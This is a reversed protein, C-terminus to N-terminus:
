EWWQGPVGARQARDELQELQNLWYERREELRAIISTYSSPVEELKQEVQAIEQRLQRFKMRWVSGDYGGYVGEVASLDIEELTMVGRSPDLSVKFNNFFPMGLLGLNMTDIVAMEVDRVIATGVRVSDLTVVPVRMPKGGVGVMTMQPTDDDIAVGLREAAWRPITNMSAGTDAIFSAMLQDNLEANLRLQNTGPTTLLTHVRASREPAATARAVPRTARPAAREGAAPDVSAAASSAPAQERRRRLAEQDARARQGPPVDALNETFHVGGHADVWRYLDAGSAAPLACLLGALAL